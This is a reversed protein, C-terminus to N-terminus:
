HLSRGFICSPAYLLGEPYCYGTKLVELLVHEDITVELFVSTWICHLCQEWHVWKITFWWDIYRAIISHKCKCKVWLQRSSYIPLLINDCSHLVIWNVLSIGLLNILLLVLKTTRWLCWGWWVWGVGTVWTCFSFFSIVQPWVCIESKNHWTLSWKAQWM